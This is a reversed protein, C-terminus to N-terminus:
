RVSGGTARAELVRSLQAIHAELGTAVVECWRAQDAEPLERVLARWHDWSAAARELPTGASAKRATYHVTRNRIRNRLAAEPSRPM